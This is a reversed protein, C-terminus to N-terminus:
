RLTPKGSSEAEPPIEYDGQRVLPLPPKKNRARTKASKLALRAFHAKRAAGARRNREVLTLICDPDVADEFRRMFAARAAATTERSDRQAHLSYAGIRGRLSAISDSM